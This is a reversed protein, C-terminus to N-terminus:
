FSHHHIILFWRVLFGFQSQGFCSIISLEWQFTLRGQFGSSLIRNIFSSVRNLSNSVGSISRSFGKKSVKAGMEYNPPASLTIEMENTPPADEVPAPINLGHDAGPKSIQAEIASIVEEGKAGLAKGHWGM